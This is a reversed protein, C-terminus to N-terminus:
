FPLEQDPDADPYEEYIETIEHNNVVDSLSEEYIRSVGSNDVVDRLKNPITSAILFPNTVKSGDKYLEINM